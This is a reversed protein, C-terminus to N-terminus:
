LIPSALDSMGQVYGLDFNYISYTLLLRRLLEQGQGREKAYLKVGRDASIPPLPPSPDTLPPVLSTPSSPAPPPPPLSVKCLCDAQFGGTGLTSAGGAREGARRAGGTRRVDKEIRAKRERWKAFRFRM